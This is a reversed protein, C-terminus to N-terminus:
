RHRRLCLRITGGEYDLEAEDVMMSVLMLENDEETEGMLQWYYDELEPQRNEKLQKRLHAIADSTLQVGHFTFALVFTDEEESYTLEFRSSELSYLFHTVIEDVIRAIKKIEHKVTRVQRELHM